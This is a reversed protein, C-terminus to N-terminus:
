LGTANVLAQKNVLLYDPMMDRLMEKLIDPSAFSVVGEKDNLPQTDVLQHHRFVMLVRYYEQQHTEQHVAPLVDVQHREKDLIDLVWKRFAKAQITRSIMGILHCGRLSFIRTNDKPDPKKGRATLNVMLTMCSTFEDAYRNYIRTVSSNDKYGLAKSLDSSTLWTQNDQIIPTLLNDNFSLHNTMITEKYFPLDGGMPRLCRTAFQALNLSGSCPVASRLRRAWGVMLIPQQAYIFLWSSLFSVM